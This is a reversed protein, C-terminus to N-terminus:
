TLKSLYSALEDGQSFEHFGSPGAMERSAESGLAKAINEAAAFSHDTTHNVVLLSRLSNGSKRLLDLVASDLGSYGITLIDLGDTAQLREILFAVHDPPCNLEDDPGLPVSLAPYYIRPPQGARRLTELGGARIYEIEDALALDDGLRGLVSTLYMDGGRIENLIRRVWNVSGHLKVLSWPTETRIYDAMEDIPDRLALRNDLITDYNLTVFVVNSSARLTANVLRDYNAAHPTFLRGVDFLLHQLYLPVARYRRRDYENSSNVIHERLYTELTLGTKSGSAARLDPALTQADPYYGLVETFKARDAFLKGVLPPRWAEEFPYSNTADRSAGAGTIVILQEPM